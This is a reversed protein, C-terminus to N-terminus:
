RSTIKCPENNGIIVDDKSDNEYTAYWDPYPCMHFPYSTDLIWDEKTKSGSDFIVLVNEMMTAIKQLM